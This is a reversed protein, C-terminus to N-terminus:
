IAIVRKNKWGVVRLVRDVTSTSCPLDGPWAPFQPVERQSYKFERLFLEPREEIIEDLAVKFADDVISHHRPLRQTASWEAM